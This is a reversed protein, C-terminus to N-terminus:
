RITGYDLRISQSSMQELEGYSAMEPVVFRLLLVDALLSEYAPAEHLSILRARLTEVILPDISPAAVLLPIPSWPTTAVTRLGALVEPQHRRSLDLYYADLAVVDVNGARLADLTSAPTGMPGFVEGYLHPRQVTRLGALYSRPANFGSQSDASMWGFRHGFTEELFTWGSSERVLFESCYRPQAAYRAPAPVPAAIVQMEFAGRVFPWGCMFACCLDARSWLDAISGSVADAIEINVSSEDFIREFLARWAAAAHPGANYM